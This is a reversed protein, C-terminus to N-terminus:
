EIVSDIISFIEGEINYIDGMPITTGDTFIILLEYEDIRRVSGSVSKYSGGTKREDSIFYTITVLPRDQVNELLIQMRENLDAKKDESLKLRKNTLRATESIEADYGTLAAFPSFQAARDHQSMQPRTSSVHRSLNIIDNYRDKENNIDM